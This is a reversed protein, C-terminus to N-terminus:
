ALELVPKGTDAGDFLMQLTGPFGGAGGKVLHERATLRGDAFWGAPERAADRYRAPDDFVAFGEMRARRVLLALYNSPGQVADENNYQSIAGCVVVSGM